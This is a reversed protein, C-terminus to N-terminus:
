NQHKNQYRAEQKSIKIDQSWVLQLFHDQFNLVRVEWIMELVQTNEKEHSLIITIAVSNMFM